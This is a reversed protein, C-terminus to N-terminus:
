SIDISLDNSEDDHSVDITIGNTENYTISVTDGRGFKRNPPVGNSYQM